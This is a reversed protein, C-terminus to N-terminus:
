AGYEYSEQERQPCVGDGVGALVYLGRMVLLLAHPLHDRAPDYMKEASGVAMSIRQSSFVLIRANRNSQSFRSCVFEQQFKPRTAHM